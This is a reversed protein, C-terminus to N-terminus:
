VTLLVHLSTGVSRHEILLVSKNSNNSADRSGSSNARGAQVGVAGLMENVARVSADIDDETGQPAGCVVADDFTLHEVNM